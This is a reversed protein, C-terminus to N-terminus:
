PRRPFLCGLLEATFALADQARLAVSPANHVVDNRARRVTEAMARQKSSFVMPKSRAAALEYQWPVYEDQDKIKLIRLRVMDRDEFREPYAAELTAACMVIAEPEFGWLYLRTARDLYAAARESVARDAILQFLDGFRAEAGLLLGDAAELALEIQIGHRVVRNAKLIQAIQAAVNKGLQGRRGLDALLQQIGTLVKGDVTLSHLCPRIAEGIKMLLAVRRREAESLESDESVGQQEWYELYENYMKNAVTGLWLSPSFSEDADYYM